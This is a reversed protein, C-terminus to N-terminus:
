ARPGTAPGSNAARPTAGSAVRVTTKAITHSADARGSGSVTGSEASRGGVSVSGDAIAASREAIASLRGAVATAPVPTPWGGWEGPGCDQPTSRRSAAAGGGEGGDRGASAFGGCGLKNVETLLNAASAAAPSACRSSTLFAGGVGTSTAARSASGSASISNVSMGSLLATSSSAAIPVNGTVISASAM